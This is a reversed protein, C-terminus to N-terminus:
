RGQVPSPVRVETRRVTPVDSARSFELRTPHNSTGASQLGRAHAQSPTGVAPHFDRGPSVNVRRFGFAVADHCCPTPLQRFHVVRGYCLSCCLTFRIRSCRGALRRASNRLRLWSRSPLLGETAALRSPGSASLGSCFCLRFPVLHRPQPPPTTSSLLTPLSCSTLLSVWRSLVPNM